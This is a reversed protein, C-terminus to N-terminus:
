ITHDLRQLIEQNGLWINGGKDKRWSKQGGPRRFHRDIGNSTAM